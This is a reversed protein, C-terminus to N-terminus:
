FHSALWVYMLQMSAPVTMVIGFGWVTFGTYNGDYEM